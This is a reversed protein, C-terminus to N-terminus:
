WGARCSPIGSIRHLPGLVLLNHFHHLIQTRGAHVLQTQEGLLQLFLAFGASRRRASRCCGTVTVLIRLPAIKHSHCDASCPPGFDSILMVGMISTNSTSIMMKMTIVGSVGFPRSASTGWGGGGPCAALAESWRM